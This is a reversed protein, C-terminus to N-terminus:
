MEAALRTAVKEHSNEARTVNKPHGDVVFAEL